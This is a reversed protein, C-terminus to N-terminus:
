LFLIRNKETVKKFDNDLTVLQLEFTRAILLQYSDDFDLSFGSRINELLCYDESPLNLIETFPLVEDIFHQFLEYRKYRFCIVGISHLSFDSIYFKGTNESLFWKCQEKKEQNLLIELFINTDILYKLAM